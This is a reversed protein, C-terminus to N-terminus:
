GSREGTGPDDDAQEDDRDPGREGYAIDARKMAEESEDATDSM